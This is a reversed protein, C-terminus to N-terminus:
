PSRPCTQSVKGGEEPSPKQRDKVFSKKRKKKKKKKVSKRGGKNSDLSNKTSARTRTKVKPGRKKNCVGHPMRLRNTNRWEGPETEGHM